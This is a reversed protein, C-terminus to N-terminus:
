AFERVQLFPLLLMRFIKRHRSLLVAMGSLMLIRSLALFLPGPCAIATSGKRAVVCFLFLPNSHQFRLRTNAFSITRVKSPPSKGRKSISACDTLATGLFAWIQSHLLDLCPAVVCNLKTLNPAICRVRLSLFPSLGIALLTHGFLVLLPNPESHGVRIVLLQGGVSEFHSLGQICCHHRGQEHKMCWAVQMTMTAKFVRM